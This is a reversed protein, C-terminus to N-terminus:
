REGPGNSAKSFFLVCNNKTVNRWSPPRAAERSDALGAAAGRRTNLAEHPAKGALWSQRQGTRHTEDEM